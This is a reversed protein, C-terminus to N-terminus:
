RGDPRRAGRRRCTSGAAPSRVGRRRSTTRGAAPVARGRRAPVARGTCSRRTERRPSRSRTRPAPLRCRCSRAEPRDPGTLLLATRFLTGSPIARLGRVAREGRAPGCVQKVVAPPRLNCQRGAPGGRARVSARRVQLYHGIQPSGSSRLLTPRRGARRMRRHDRERTTLDRMFTATTLSVAGPSRRTASTGSATALSRAAPSSTRTSVPAPSLAQSLSSANVSAPAPMAARSSSAAPASTITVTPLGSSCTIAPSRGPWATSPISAGSPSGPKARRRASAPTVAMLRSRIGRVSGRAWDM